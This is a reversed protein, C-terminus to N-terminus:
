QYPEITRSVSCIDEQKNIIVIRLSSYVFYLETQRGNLRVSTHSADSPEGGLGCRLGMMNVVAPGRSVGPLSFCTADNVRNEERESQSEREGGREGERLNSHCRRYRLTHASGKHVRTTRRGSARSTGPSSRRSGGDNSRLTSHSSTSHLM